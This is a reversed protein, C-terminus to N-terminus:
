SQKGLGGDYEYEFNSQHIAKEGVESCGERREGDRGGEGRGGQRSGNRIM